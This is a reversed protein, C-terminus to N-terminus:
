QVYYDPCDPSRHRYEIELRNKRDAFVFRDYETTATITTDCHTCVYDKLAVCFRHFSKIERRKVPM